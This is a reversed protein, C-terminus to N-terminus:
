KLLVDDSTNAILACIFVLIIVKVVLATSWVFNLINRDAIDSVLTKKLIVFVVVM